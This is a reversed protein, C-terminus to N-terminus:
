LEKGKKNSYLKHIMNDLSSHNFFSLSFDRPNFDSSSTEVRKGGNLLILKKPNKLVHCNYM